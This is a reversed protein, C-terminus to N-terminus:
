WNTKWGALATWEAAADRDHGPQHAAALRVRPQGFATKSGLWDAAFRLERGAPTLPVTVSDRRIGHPGNTGTPLDLTMAGSEARVPQEFTFRFAGHETRRAARLAFTSTTTNGIATVLGRNAEPQSFGLEIRAGLTWAGVSTTRETGVIATTNGFRGFAGSAANGLFSAPEHIFGARFVGRDVTVSTVSPAEDRAALSSQYRLTTDGHKWSGEGITNAFALHGTPTFDVSFNAGDAREPESAAIPDHMWDNFDTRFTNAPGVVFANLPIDYPYGLSDVLTVPTSAFSTAPTSPTSVASSAATVTNETASAAMPMALPGFPEIADNFHVIGCGVDADVYSAGRIATACLRQIDQEPTKEPFVQDMVSLLGSVYATAVSSGGLATKLNTATTTGDPDGAPWWPDTLENASWVTPAALCIYGAQNRFSEPGCQNYRTGANTRGLRGDEAAAVIVSNPNDSAFAVSEPSPISADVANSASGNGAGKVFTVSSRREAILARIKPTSAYNEINEAENIYSMNVVTAGRDVLSRLMADHTLGTEFYSMVFEAAPAIRRIATRMYIAHPHVSEQYDAIGVIQGQGRTEGRITSLRHDLRDIQSQPSHSLVPPLQPDTPSSTSSGSGGGCAYLLATLALGALAPPITQLRTM